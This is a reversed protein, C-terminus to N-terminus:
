AGPLQLTITKSAAKCVATVRGGKRLKSRDVSARIRDGSAFGGIALFETDFFGSFRGANRIPPDPAVRVVLEGGARRIEVKRTVCGRQKSALGGTFNIFNEFGDLGYGISVETGLQPPKGKGAQAPLAAALAIAAWALAVLGGLRM